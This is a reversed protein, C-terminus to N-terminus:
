KRQLIGKWNNLELIYEPTKSWEDKDTLEFLLEPHEKKPVDIFIPSGKNRTQSDSLAVIVVSSDKFV